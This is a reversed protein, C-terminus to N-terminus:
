DHGCGIWKIGENTEVVFSRNEECSKNRLASLFVSENVEIGYAYLEAEVVKRREFAYHHKLKETSEYVVVISGALVAILFLTTFISMYGRM